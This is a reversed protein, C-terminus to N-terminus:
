TNSSIIDGATFIKHTNEDLIWLNGDTTVSNCGGRPHLFFYDMEATFDTVHQSSSFSITLATRRYGNGTNDWQRLCQMNYATVVTTTFYNNNTVLIENIKNLFSLCYSSHLIFPSEKYIRNTQDTHRCKYKKILEGFSFPINHRPEASRKYNILNKNKQM